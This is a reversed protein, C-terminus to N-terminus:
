KGMAPPLIIPNMGKGLTNPSHSICDTEDLNQVRTARTWKRHHYGNCWPCGEKGLPYIRYFIKNKPEKRQNRGNYIKPITLLIKYTYTALHKNRQHSKLYTKSHWRVVSQFSSFFVSVISLNKSRTLSSLFSNFM